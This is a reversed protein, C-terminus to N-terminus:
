LDLLVSSSDTVLLSLTQDAASHVPGTQTRQTIHLTGPGATEHVQAFTFWKLLVKVRQGDETM